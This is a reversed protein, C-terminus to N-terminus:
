LPVVCSLGEPKCSKLDFFVDSAGKVQFDYGTIGQGGDDPATWSMKVSCYIRETKVPLMSSPSTHFSVSLDDSWPGNGCSNRARIRFNYSKGKQLDKALITTEKTTTLLEFNDDGANDRYIEYDDTDATAV